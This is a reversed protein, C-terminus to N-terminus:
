FVSYKVSLTFRSAQQTNSNVSGTADILYLYKKAIAATTYPTFIHYTGAAQNLNIDVETGFPTGDGPDSGAIVASDLPSFAAVGAGCVETGSSVASNTSTGSTASLQLNCDCAAGADVLIGILFETFFFKTAATIGAPVTTDLTGLEVLVDSANYASTGGNTGALSGAFAQFKHLGLYNTTNKANLQGTMTTTGVVTGGDTLNLNSDILNHFQTETPYDGTNFYSKLTTKTEAAM